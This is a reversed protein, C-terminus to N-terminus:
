RAPLLASQLFGLLAQRQRVMSRATPEVGLARLVEVETAVGVVSSYAMLLLLRADQTRLEGRRMSEDLFRTARDILPGLMLAFRTAAPPGLRSVERVLGLLEPRRAALRFVARVVSRVREWAPDPGGPAALSLAATLELAAQDVAAELLAEKSPFYYLITQKRVGLEAAVADLSTVDYGRRGFATLAADVV